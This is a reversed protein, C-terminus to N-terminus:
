SIFKVVPFIGSRVQVEGVIRLGGLEPTTLLVSLKVDRYGDAAAEAAGEAFGNKVRM